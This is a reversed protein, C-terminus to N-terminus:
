RLCLVRYRNKVFQTSIRGGDLDVYWAYGSSGESPTRSWFLSDELEFMAACTGSDECSSCDGYKGRRVDDECGGLLSVLDDRNPVRYGSPCADVIDAFSRREASGACASGSWKMGVPCRLWIKNTGPQLVEEPGAPASAQAAAAAETAAPAAARDQAPTTAAGEEAAPDAAVPRREVAEGELQGPPVV